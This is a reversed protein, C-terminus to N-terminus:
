TLYKTKVINLLLNFCPRTMNMLPPLSGAKQSDRNWGLIEEIFPAHGREVVQFLAKEVIKRQMHNLNDHKLVKGIHDLIEITRVHLLKMQYIGGIGKRIRQKRNGQDKDEKPVTISVDGIATDRLRPIHISALENLPTEGSHDKAIILNPYHRLIDLPIDLHKLRLGTSVLEAADRSKLKELPTVSYLYDAMKPKDLSLAYLVPITNASPHVVRILLKKNKEVICKVMEIAEDTNSNQIAVSLATEGYKNLIDLDKKKMLPLLEKVGDVMELLAAIQLPTIGWSLKARVAESHQKIFERVAEWQRRLLMDHFDDSGELEVAATSLDANGDNSSTDDNSDVESNVELTELVEPPNFKKALASWGDRAMESDRVCSEADDGCFLIIVHLARANNKRWATFIAEGDELKPPERTGEVVEWLNEALLYTKVWFSWHEYSM